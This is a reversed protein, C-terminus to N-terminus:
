CAALRSTRCSRDTLDATARMVMGGLVYDQASARARRGEWRADPGVAVLVSVVLVSFVLVASETILRGYGAGTSSM